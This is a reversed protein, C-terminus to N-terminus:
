FILKAALQLNRPINFQSTAKGFNSSTPDLNPTAFIPHNLANIAEFRLQLRVSRNFSVTKILSADLFQVRQTRIGPRSPFTRINSALRIRPDTRQKAPDDSGNTQVAADHFYFGSTDFIRDVNSWDSKLKSPDGNYYV